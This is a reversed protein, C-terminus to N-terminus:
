RQEVKAASINGMVDDEFEKIIDELDVLDDPNIDDVDIGDEVININDLLAPVQGIIGCLKCKVEPYDVTKIYCGFEGSCKGCRLRVHPKPKSLPWRFKLIEYDIM